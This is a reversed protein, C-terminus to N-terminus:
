LGLSDRLAQINAAAYPRLAVVDGNPESFVLCRGERFVCEMATFGELGLLDGALEVLRQSYAIAGAMEESGGKNKLITGSASLRLVVSFEALTESGHIPVPGSGRNSQGSPQRMDSGKTM